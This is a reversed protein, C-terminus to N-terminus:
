HSHPTNEPRGNGEWKGTGGAAPCVRMFLYVGDIERQSWGKLMTLPYPCTQLPYPCYGPTPAWIGQAPSVPNWARPREKMGDDCFLFPDDDRFLRGSSDRLETYCGKDMSAGMCPPAPKQQADAGWASIAFLTALSLLLSKM